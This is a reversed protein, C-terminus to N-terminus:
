DLLDAENSASFLDPEDDLVRGGSVEGAQTHSPRRFQFFLVFFSGVICVCTPIQLGIFRGIEPDGPGLGASADRPRHEPRPLILDATICTHLM